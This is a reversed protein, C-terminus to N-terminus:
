SIEDTGGNIVILDFQLPFRRRYELSFVYFYFTIFSCSKESIRKAPSGSLPAQRQQEIFIRVKASLRRSAPRVALIPVAREYPTLLCIVTGERLEARLPWGPAQAIGLHELLGLRVELRRVNARPPQLRLLMLGLARALKSLAQTFIKVAGKTASYAVLGPVLVRKGVASGTMIIRGGSKM